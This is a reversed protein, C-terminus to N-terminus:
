TYGVISVSKWGGIKLTYTPFASPTEWRKEDRWLWSKVSQM